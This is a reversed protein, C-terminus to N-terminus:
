NMKAIWERILAVAEPQMQTRGLEPMMVGPDTSKIRYLLISEDPKGPVIGFRLNGSGRGAAVPTKEVGLKLKDKEQWGLHLGSTSAPGDGRHCHACNIDLWIRAREDLSGTAPDNWAVGKPADGSYNTLIGATQWHKLQNEKVSGYNHEGNLQWASPGIPMMKEAKNHCGKCQNMNPVVYAHTRKKGQPDVYSVSTSEGAVDLVAETQEENWIYPLAKWGSEEHLLVRTEIIKRGKSPDRFDVPYYFSKILATGVPFDFVTTDNYPVSAGAPLKVFRLKEAYDTFLPTNLHYPMVGEAPEQSKMDGKFFGYDSLKM